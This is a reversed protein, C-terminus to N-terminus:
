ERDTIELTVALMRRLSRGLERVEDETIRHLNDVGDGVNNMFYINEGGDCVVGFMEHATEGEEQSTFIRWKFNYNETGTLDALVKEAPRLEGYKVELRAEVEPRGTERWAIQGAGVTVHAARRDGRQKYHGHINGGPRSM